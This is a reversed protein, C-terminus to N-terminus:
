EERRLFILKVRGYKRTDCIEIDLKEIEEIERDIQDTEVIIMGDTNLLNWKLILEIAKGALDLEYPPDILIYDFKKKEDKCRKLVSDYNKCIVKSNKLLHTKELNKQIVKIADRAQDCFWCEKAGRSLAEIGLAGSGAFLDLVLRDKMDFQIKNFMAEKVRDLTPRTTQGNLSFLSTGRASGSIVRM